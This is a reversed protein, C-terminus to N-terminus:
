RCLGALKQLTDDALPPLEVGKAAAMQGLLTGASPFARNPDIAYAPDSQAEPLTVLVFGREDLLRLLEPLMVTQFAGNHLVMVHAIDRGYVRKALEPGGRLCEAARELFRQKMWDIAAVDDKTRCRAYPDNYAWDDFSLTVQAVRYGRERLFQAVAGRKALTEGEHLYPFRLWHWDQDGAYQRLASENAVVDREFAETTNADLDMHSFTHNALPQGAARWLRLVEANDPADALGNANVFGYSPPAHHAQLAALISRAVDGRSMGPPLAAHVPLDDFTLAVRQHAGVPAPQAPQPVVTPAKSVPGPGAGATGGTGALALVIVVMPKLMNPLSVGGLSSLRFQVQRSRDALM